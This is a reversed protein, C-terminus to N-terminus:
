ERWLTQRGSVSIRGEALAGVVLPLLQREAEQIREHLTAPTDGPLVPVAEQAIIPGSDV